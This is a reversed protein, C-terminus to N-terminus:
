QSPPFQCPSHLPPSKQAPDPLIFSIKNSLSSYELYLTNAAHLHSPKPYKIHALSACAHKTTGLEKCSWPSYGMLSRPGCFKGPLFVSTPQWKRNWPIKKVWPDFRCRKCRRCQCASEKGSAVQSAQISFVGLNLDPAEWTARTTFSGGALAPSTLSTPETGPNPLAEPPPCPLGNQLIGIYLFAQCAVTWPNCLTLCSQTILCLM